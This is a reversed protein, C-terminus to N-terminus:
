WEQLVQPEIVDDELSSSREMPKMGWPELFLDEWMYAVHTPVFKWVMLFIM